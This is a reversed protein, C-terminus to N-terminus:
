SPLGQREARPGDLVISFIRGLTRDPCDEDDAGYRFSCFSVNIMGWFMAPLLACLFIVGLNLVIPKLKGFCIELSILFAALCRTIVKRGRSRRRYVFQTISGQTDYDLTERWEHRRGRTLQGYWERVRSYLTERRPAGMRLNPSMNAFRFIITDVESKLTLESDKGGM